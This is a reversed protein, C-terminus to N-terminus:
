LKAFIFTPIKNINNNPQANVRERKSLAKEKEKEKEKEKHVELVM